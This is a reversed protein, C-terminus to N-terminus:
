NDPDEGRVIKNAKEELESIIKKSTAESKRLNRLITVQAEIARLISRLRAEMQEAKEQELKAKLADVASQTMPSAKEALRSLFNGLDLSNKKTM